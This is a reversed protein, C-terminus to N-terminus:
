NPLYIGSKTKKLTSNTDKNDSLLLGKESDMTNEAQLVLVDIANVDYEPDGTVTIGRTYVARDTRLILLVGEKTGFYKGYINIGRHDTPVFYYEWTDPFGVGDLKKQGYEALRSRYTIPGSGQVLTKATDAFDKEEKIREKEYEEVYKRGGGEREPLDVQRLYELDEAMEKKKKEEKDKKSKYKTSM